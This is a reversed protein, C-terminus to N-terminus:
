WILPVLRRRVQRCYSEYEPGLQALMRAEDQRARTALLLCCLVFTGALYPRPLALLPAGAALLAGLYLPNRVLGFAGTTQLQTPLEDPVRKQFIPGIMRRAWIWFAIGGAFLVASAVAPWFPLSAANSASLCSLTVHVSMVVTTSVAAIREGRSYRPLSDRMSEPRIVFLPIWGLTYFAALAVGLIM